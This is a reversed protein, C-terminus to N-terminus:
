ASRGHKMEKVTEPDDLVDIGSDPKGSGNEERYQEFEFALLKVDHVFQEDMGNAEAALAYARLAFAANPDRAGLVFSPWEPVSGNRRKVLYKGESTKQNNRWLGAM